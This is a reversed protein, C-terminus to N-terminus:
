PALWNQKPGPASDGRSNRGTLWLQYLDGSDFTIAAPIVVSLEGRGGIALLEPMGGPGQRWATLRTADGPLATTSLTRTGAAWTTTLPPTPLDLIPTRLLTVDFLTDVLLPEARFVSMGLGVMAYLLAAAEVRLTELHNRAEEAYIIKNQQVGRLALAANYFASVTGGLTVLVPKTAQQNLRLGLARLADLQGDITGETVTARGRPLLEMYIPGQYAVQGRITTDWTEILSNTDADPKRTLSALKDQFAYTAALQQAETNIRTTEASNWAPTLTTIEDRIPILEPHDSAAANIRPETSSLIEGMLTLDNTTASLFQNEAYKSPATPM